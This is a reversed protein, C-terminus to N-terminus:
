IAALQEHTYPAHEMNTAKHRYFETGGQCFEDPTLYLLCSWHCNDIHINATGQDNELALRFKGHSTGEKPRLKEGVLSSIVRDLERMTVANESNRGPFYSQTAPEHFKSALAINRLEEPNDLSDDVVLYSLQM